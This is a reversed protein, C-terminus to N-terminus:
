KKSKLQVFYLNFKKQVPKEIEAHPKLAELFHTFKEYGYNAIFKQRGRLFMTVKLGYKKDLFGIARKIRLQLDNEAISASFRIQKVVNSSKKKRQKKLLKQKQYNYKGFDLIRCIPKAVDKNVLLLDLGQEQAMKLAVVKDFIGLNKGNQDIM